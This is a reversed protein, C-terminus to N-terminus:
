DNLLVPAVVRQHQMRQVADRMMLVQPLLVAGGALLVWLLLHNSLLLLGAV